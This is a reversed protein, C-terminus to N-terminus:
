LMLLGFSSAVHFDPEPTESDVWSIWKLTAKKGVLNNCHGRYLGAQIQNDKLLNLDALTDLKVKGSLIYKNGEVRTQIALDDPWQWDRNFQRYHNAEYDLVRGHPDMELCYYPTMKEDSRFFIEVRESHIVELKSNTDVYVLPKPGYAEFQFYFYEGDQAGRFITQPAAEVRWPYSFDNLPNIKEWNPKTQSQLKTLKYKKM